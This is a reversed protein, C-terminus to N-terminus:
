TYAEFTQPEKSQADTKTTGTTYKTSQEHSSKITSTDFDNDSAGSDKNFTFIGESTEKVFDHAFNIKFEPYKYNPKNEVLNKKAVVMNKISEEALKELQAAINGSINGEEEFQEVKTVIELVSLFLEWIYSSPINKLFTMFNVMSKQKKNSKLLKYIFTYRYQGLDSAVLEKTKCSGLLKILNVTQKNGSRPDESFRRIDSKTEYVLVNQFHAISKREGRREFEIIKPFDEILRKIKSITPFYAENEIVQCMRNAM